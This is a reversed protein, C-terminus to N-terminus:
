YRRPKDAQRSRWFYRATVQWSDDALTADFWGEAAYLEAAM